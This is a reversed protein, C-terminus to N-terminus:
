RRDTRDTTYYIVCSNVAYCGAVRGPHSLLVLHLIAFFAVPDFVFTVARWSAFDAWAVHRKQPLFGSTTRIRVGAPRACINRFHQADAPIAAYAAVLWAYM